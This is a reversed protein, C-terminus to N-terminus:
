LLLSKGQLVLSIIGSSALLFAALTIYHLSLRANHKLTMKNRFRDLLILCLVFPLTLAAWILSVTKDNMFFMVLFVSFFIMLVSKRRGGKMSLYIWAVTASLLIFADVELSTVHTQFIDEYTVRFQFTYVKTQIASGVVLFYFFSIIVSCISSLIVSRNKGVGLFSLICPISVNSTV